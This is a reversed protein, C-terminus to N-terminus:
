RKGDHAETSRFERVATAVFRADLGLHDRVFAVDAEHSQETAPPLHVKLWGRLFRKAGPGHGSITMDVLRDAWRALESFFAVRLTINRGFDGPLPHGALEDIMATINVLALRRFDGCMRMGILDKVVGIGGYFFSQTAGDQPEQDVLSDNSLHDLATPDFYIFMSLPDHPSDVASLEYGAPNERLSRAAMQIAMAVPYINFGLLTVVRDPPLGLQTMEIAVAMMAADGVSYLATRGKQTEFGVPFGLRHLNKLRAQFATRRTQDIRHMAALQAELRGFNWRIASSTM